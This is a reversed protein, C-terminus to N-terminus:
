APGKKKDAVPCAYGFMMRQDGAIEGVILCFATTLLTECAVRGTPDQRLVEALRGGSGRARPRPSRFRRRDVITINPTFRVNLLLSLRMTRHSEHAAISEANEITDGNVLGM